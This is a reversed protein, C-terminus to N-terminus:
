MHTLGYYCQKDNWQQQARPSVDTMQAALPWWSITPLAIIADCEGARSMMGGSQPNNQMFAYNSLKNGNELWRDPIIESKKDENGFCPRLM